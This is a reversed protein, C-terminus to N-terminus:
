VGHSPEPAISQPDLRVSIDSLMMGFSARGSIVNPVPLFPTPYLSAGKLILEGGSYGTLKGGFFSGDIEDIDAVVDVYIRFREFPPCFLFTRDKKLGDSLFSHRTKGFESFVASFSRWLDRGAYNVKIKWYPRWGTVREIKQGNLSILSYEKEEALWKVCSTSFNGDKFTILKKRRRGTAMYLESPNMATAKKAISGEVDGFFPYSISRM